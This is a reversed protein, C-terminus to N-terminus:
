TEKMKWRVLTEAEGPDEALAEMALIMVRVAGDPVLLGVRRSGDGIVETIRKVARRLEELNAINNANPVPNITQPEMERMAIHRLTRASANLSAGVVFGPEIELVMPPLVFHSQSSGRGSRFRNKVSTWSM